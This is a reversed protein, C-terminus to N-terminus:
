KASSLKSKYQVRAGFPSVDLMEKSEQARGGGSVRSDASSVAEGFGIAVTM